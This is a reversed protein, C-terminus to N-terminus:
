NQSYLLAKYAPNHLAIIAPTELSQTDHSRYPLLAQNASQLNKEFFFKPQM